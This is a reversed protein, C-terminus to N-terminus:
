KKSFLEKFRFGYTLTNKKPCSEICDFCNICNPHWVNSTKSVEINMPCSKDCLTCNVCSEKNRKITFIRFPARINFRISETCLYNCFPRDFIMSIIIFSVMIISLLSLSFGVRPLSMFAKYSNFPAYFAAIIEVGVLIAIVFKTVQLYKQISRPMKLPKKIFFRGLTSGIDQATGFPCVWGCFFNGLLITTPVLFGLSKRHQM